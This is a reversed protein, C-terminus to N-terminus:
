VGGDISFCPGRARQEVANRVRALPDDCTRHEKLANLAQSQTSKSVCRDVALYSLFGRLKETPTGTNNKLCWRGYRVVWHLYAKETKYSLHRFRAVHRVRTIAEEMNM